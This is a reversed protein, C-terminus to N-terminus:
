IAAQRARLRALGRAIVGGSVPYIEEKPKQALAGPKALGAFGEARRGYKWYRVSLNIAFDEAEFEDLGMVRKAWRQVAKQGKQSIGKGPRRGMELPLFHIKSQGIIARPQDKTAPVLSWGQRLSGTDGPTVRVLESELQAAEENLVRLLKQRQDTWWKEPPPGSTTLAM